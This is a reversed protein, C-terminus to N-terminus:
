KLEDFDGRIEHFKERYAEADGYDLFKEYRAHMIRLKHAHKIPCWYQETRSVVELLYAFLGNAYSCYICNAKEILNLYCLYHRDIIIYDGRKVKPIGYVPFCLLQYMSLTIDVMFIFPLCGWIIPVTPLHRLKAGFIYGLLGQMLLKHQAKIRAEFIVRKKKIEYYFERQKKQLELTLEEELQKIKSVIALIRNNM